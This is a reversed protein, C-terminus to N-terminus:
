YIRVHVFDSHRAARHQCVSLDGALASEIVSNVFHGLARAECFVLWALADTMRGTRRGFGGLRHSQLVSGPRACLSVSLAPVAFGM